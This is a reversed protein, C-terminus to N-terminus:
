IIYKYLKSVFEGVEYCSFMHTEGTVQIVPCDNQNLTSAIYLFLNVILIM